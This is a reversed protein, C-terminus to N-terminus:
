LGFYSRMEKLMDALYDIEAKTNYIYVSARATAVKGMIRMLPQACH